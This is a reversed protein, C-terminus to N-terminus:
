DSSSSSDNRVDRAGQKRYDELFEALSNLYNFELDALKHVKAISFEELDEYPNLVFFLQRTFMRSGDLLFAITECGLGALKEEIANMKMRYIAELEDHLSL